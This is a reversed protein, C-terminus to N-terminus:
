DKNRERYKSIQHPLDYLYEFLFDLFRVIDKANAPEIPPEESSPHASSNGLLRINDSWNKIIPPLIGRSALYDIEQKLTKGEAKQERLAAQLASRAMVAAADWNEEKLSPRAQLWFRGVPEPWYEPFRELKKPWPLVVYDHLGRDGYSHEGASWLVM